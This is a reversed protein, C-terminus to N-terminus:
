LDAPDAVQAPGPAPDAESGSRRCRSGLGRCSGAGARSRRSAPPPACARWTGAPVVACSRRTSGSPARAPTSAGTASGRRRGAAAPHRARQDLGDGRRPRAAPRDLDRARGEARRRDGARGLRPAARLVRLGLRLPRQGARHRQLDRAAPPRAVPRPLRPRAARARRRRAPDGAGARGRPAAARRAGGPRRAFARSPRDATRAGATAPARRARRAPVRAGRRPRLGRRLRHPRCRAPQTLHPASAPWAFGVCLGTAGADDAFGLGEPWSRVKRDVREPRFAFLSRHPDRDRRGPHFKYGHILVVVPAHPGADQLSRRLGAELDEGGPVAPRLGAETASIGFYAM